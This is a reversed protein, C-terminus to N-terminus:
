QGVSAVPCVGDQGHEEGRFAWTAGVGATPVVAAVIFVTTGPVSLWGGDGDTLDALLCGDLFLVHDGGQLLQVEDVVVLSLVNQCEVLVQNLLVRLFHPFSRQPDLRLIQM